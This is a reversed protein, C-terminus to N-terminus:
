ANRVHKNPSNLLKVVEVYNIFLVRLLLKVVILYSYVVNIM